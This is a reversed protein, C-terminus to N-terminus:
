FRFSFCENKGFSTFCCIVVKNGSEQGSSLCSPASPPSSNSSVINFSLNWSSATTTPAMMSSVMLNTSAMMTTSVMNQRLMARALTQVSDCVMAPRLITHINHPISCWTSILNDSDADHGNALIFIM